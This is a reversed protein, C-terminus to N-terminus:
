SEDQWVKFSISDKNTNKVSYMLDDAIKIAQKIDTPMSEFTVLGISFSVPWHYHKMRKQLEQNAKTFAVKSAEQGTEPLLCAFEDGGLRAIIDTARLSDKLCNAVEILLKDGEIHGKSDNINKFNDIDIYALSFVHDYRVSRVLENALEAYFGRLNLINTLKDTDAAISEERHVDRFNTVLIALASLSIACPLGYTVIKIPVFGTQFADILLLLLSSVLSLLFGSKRSGYWSVLIIPISYFLELFIIKGFISSLVALVV